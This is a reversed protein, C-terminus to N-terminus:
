GLTRKKNLRADAEQSSNVDGTLVYARVTPQVTTAEPATAGEIAEGVDITPVPAATQNIGGGGGTAAGSTSVPVANINKVAALGSALITAVNAVKVIVDFPSPLTSKQKLVETVGLYTNILAQASALAKGAQTEQGIVAGLAGMADGTAYLAEQQAYEDEIAVETEANKIRQQSTAEETKANILEQLDANDKQAQSLTETNIALVSTVKSRKKLKETEPDEQDPDVGTGQTKTSELRLEEKKAENGAQILDNYKQQSKSINNISASALASVTGTISGFGSITAKAKDWFSLEGAEGSAQKVAEEAAAAYLANALARQELAKLHIDTNDNLLKEAENLDTAYGLTKGFEENYDNLAKEKDVFGQQALSLQNTTELVASLFESQQKTVDEAIDEYVQQEASAGELAATVKDWNAALAGVAVVLAGIGTGILAKRSVKGFLEAQLTALVASDKIQKFGESLDKLGIAVSIASAAKKELEGFADSEVGILGLAGVVTALSGGMTKIAGDAAMFKKDDTFGEAAATAKNLQNTLTAADKSLQEFKPDTQSIGKLEEQVDALTQELKNIPVQEIDFNIRITETRAM